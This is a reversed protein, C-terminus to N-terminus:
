EMNTNFLKKNKMARALYVFPTDLLSTIIFIVFSSLAISVLEPVKYTGFFAGFTFLLTNLLQSIITSGNNRLWLFGTQTGFRKETFEWWKHYLWVDFRQVIAYVAFGTLMLRPTNSFIANISSFAWDETSPTFLLWLQSIIIFCISTLIGTNVARQAKKKGAVESLIDTTLFTSAFMVNGLTQSMGFANILIMVEINAAITAIATWCFLGREGFMMYWLLVMGYFIVVTILLLIENPM